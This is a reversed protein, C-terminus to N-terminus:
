GDGRWLAVSLKEAVLQNQGQARIGATDVVRYVRTADRDSRTGVPKMTTGTVPSVISREEGGGHKILTSKALMRGATDCDVVV